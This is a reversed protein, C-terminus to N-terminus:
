RQFSWAQASDFGPRNERGDPKKTGTLGLVGEISVAGIPDPHLRAVASAAMPSVLKRGDRSGVLIWGKMSNM